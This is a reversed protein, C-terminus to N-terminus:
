MVGFSSADPALESMWRELDRLVAPDANEQIVLSASTHRIFCTILGDTVGADRVFADLPGTIEYLGAGRTSVTITHHAQKM